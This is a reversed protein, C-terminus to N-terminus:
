GRRAAAVARSFTDIWRERAARLLLTREGPRGTGIPRGDLTVLPLIGSVSSCLFAEAAALLDAPWLDAEEPALGLEPVQGPAQALLWGRTTGVLIGASRPPTALRSGMVAFVNASTSECVRGDLALFLADDAGARAAEIKAHVYDARSTSKVGAFPSDPDRRVASTIARVGAELLAGPPPAYPWAQIAVTPSASEWGAPLTGSRDLRGRTITIRLAADGPGRTEDGRADLGEAALLEAVAERLRAPPFPLRIALAELSEALRAVHEDWEIPVGRRARFTEFVGDGLQFGRDAVNVHPADAPVLRGDLWISRPVTM